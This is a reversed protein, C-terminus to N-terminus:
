FFSSFQLSGISLCLFDYGYNEINDFVVNHNWGEEFIISM